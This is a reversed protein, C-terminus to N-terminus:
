PFNVTIAQSIITPCAVSSLTVPASKTTASPYAKPATYLGSPSIIGYQGAGTGAGGVIGNVMYSVAYAPLGSTGAGAGGTCPNYGNIGTVYGAFQFTGGLPVYINSPVALGSFGIGVGTPPGSGGGGILSFAFFLSASVVQSPNTPSVPNTVMVETTGQVVNGNSDVIGAAKAAALQAGSYVPAGGAMCYFNTGPAPDPLTGVNSGAPLITWTPNLPANTVSVFLQVCGGLGGGVPMEVAGTIGGAGAPNTPYFFGYPAFCGNCIPSATLSMTVNQYSFSSPGACSILSMSSFLIAVALLKSCLKM